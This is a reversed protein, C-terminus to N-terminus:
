SPTLTAWPPVQYARAVSVGVRLGDIEVLLDTMKGTTTYHVETETALLTALECRHLVEFAFAESVTSSGGANETDMLRQGGETLLVLDEADFVDDAFDLRNVFYFPEPSTLEDDLVGCDGSIAGFGPLPVEVVPEGGDPEGEDPEAGDPEGGDPEGPDGADPVDNGADRDEVPPGSDPSDVPSGNDPCAALLAGAFLLAFFSRAPTM